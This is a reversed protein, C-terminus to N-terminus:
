AEGLFELDVDIRRAELDLSRVADRILPVLLLAGADVREVELVECSPLGVLRRVQGVERSGDVVVCGPLEHAWVEDEELPPLDAEAVFLPEGRLAEVADRSDIGAVRLIPRDVTGARRQVDAIRGQLRFPLGM